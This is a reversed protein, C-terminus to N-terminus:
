REHFIAFNGKKDLLYFGSSKWKGSPNEKDIMKIKEKSIKNKLIILFDLNDENTEIILQKQKLRFSTDIILKKKDYDYEEDMKWNEIIFDYIEQQKSNM